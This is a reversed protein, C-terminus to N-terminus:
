WDKRNSSHCLRQYEPQGLSHGVKKKGVSIIKRDSPIEVLTTLKTDDSRSIAVLDAQIEDTTTKHTM